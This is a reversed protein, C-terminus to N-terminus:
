CLSCHYNLRDHKLQDQRNNSVSLYNKQFEKDAKSNPGPIVMKPCEQGVSFIDSVERIFLRCINVIFYCDSQFIRKNSTKLKSSLFILKQFYTTTSQLGSCTTTLVSCYKDPSWIGLCITLKIRYMLQIVMSWQLRMTKLKASYILLM